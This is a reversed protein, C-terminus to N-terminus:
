MRRNYEETLFDVNEKLSNIFDSEEIKREAPLAEKEEYFEVEQM